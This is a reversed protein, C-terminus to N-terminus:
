NCLKKYMLFTDLRYLINEWPRKVETEPAEATAKLYKQYHIEEKGFAKVYDYDTLLEQMLYPHSTNQEARKREQLFLYSNRLFSEPYLIISLPFHDSSVRM